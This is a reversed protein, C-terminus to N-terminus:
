SAGIQRQPGFTGMVVDDIFLGIVGSNGCLDRAAIEMSLKLARPSLSLM